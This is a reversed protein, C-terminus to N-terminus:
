IQKFSACVQNDEPNVYDDFSDNELDINDEEAEKFRKSSSGRADGGHVDTAAVAPRRKKIPTIAQKVPHKDENPSSM